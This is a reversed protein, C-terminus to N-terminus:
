TWWSPCATPSYASQQEGIPGMTITAGHPWRAMRASRSGIPGAPRWRRHRTKGALVGAHEGVRCGGTASTGMGLPGYSNYGWAALTGDSCLALSHGDGAAARLSRRARWCATLDVSVPVSRDMAAPTAWTATPLQLGVGVAQREAWQLVLDNGTGGFYNAVFPYTIGGYTLNVKQGQALNDFTGQIFALGTNKVVTLNTGAAPAFSLTFNVTNGTATYSAATVPVTTAATYTAAVNAAAAPLVSLCWTALLRCLTQPLTNM